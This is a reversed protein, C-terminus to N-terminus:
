GYFSEGNSEVTWETIRFSVTYAGDPWKTVHFGGTSSSLSQDSARRELNRMLGRVTKRMQAKTPVGDEGEGGLWKRGTALMTREVREFDFNDMVEDIIKQM